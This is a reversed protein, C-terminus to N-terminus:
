RLLFTAAESALADPQHIWLFRGAEHLVVSRAAPIGAVLDGAAVPGGPHWVLLPGAGDRDPRSALRM